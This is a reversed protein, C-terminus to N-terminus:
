LFDMPSIFLFMFLDHFFLFIMAFHSLIKFAFRTSIGEMGETVGADERYEFISKANPDLEKLNEGNYVRMKSALKSNQPEILRSM